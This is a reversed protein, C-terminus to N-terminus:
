NKFINEYIKQKKINSNPHFIFKPDYTEQNQLNVRLM